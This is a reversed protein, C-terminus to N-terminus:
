SRGTNVESLSIGTLSYCLEDRHSLKQFLSSMCIEETLM